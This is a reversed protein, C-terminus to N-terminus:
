NSMQKAVFTEVKACVTEEDLNWLCHPVPFRCSDFCPKYRCEAGEIWEAAPHIPAFSSSLQPGFITFTPVGLVAALHGPGSDNGIFISAADLFVMLESLSCPVSVAEGHQQWYHRQNADCLVQVRYGQRRLRGALNRYRDLPWVRVVARAGTHIIVRMESPERRVADVHRLEFGLEAALRQWFAYRHAANGGRSLPNTLLIQSGLRPFGLSRKPKMLWMLLHDRPDYRGSVAFDFKQSRINQVLVAIDKWPWDYLRYKGHFVTWPARFPVLTVRPWLRGQLEQAMPQAILTVDFQESARWLFPAALALDGVNWLELVLLKPKQGIM